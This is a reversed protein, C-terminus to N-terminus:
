KPFDVPADSDTRLYAEIDARKAPDPEGPYTMKTGPVFASPKTIFTNIDEYTWNGGKAKMGDSYNFGAISGKPRGVVGWLPPGVKAVGGKEFSHCSQCVKTDAEGKKPDAKALLEPLPVEKPAAPAAAATAAVGSPLPYGGKEDENPAFIASSFVAVGKTLLLVMLLSMAIKNTDTTQMRTTAEIESIKIHRM